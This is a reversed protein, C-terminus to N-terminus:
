HADQGIFKFITLFIIKIDLLPTWKKIYDIDLEYRKELHHKNNIIGRYGNIQALGTLGPKCRHRQMFGKIQRSFEDNHELAHPRPGVLSMEGKLINIFQPLEDISFRRIFKGVKLTRNDNKKVQSNDSSKKLSRLKLIKIINGDWGHRKQVFFIPRGDEFYIFLGFLFILPLSLLLFILGLSYDIVLKLLYNFGYFPSLSTDFISYGNLNDLLIDKHYENSYLTRIDIPLYSLKNMLIKRNINEAALIWVQSINYYSLNHSLKKDLNIQQIPFLNYPKNKDIFYCLRFHYKNENNFEKILKKCDEFNGILFVNKTLLNTQILKNYLYNFLYKHLIFLLSVSIIFFILWLRSYFNTVKLIVSIFILIFIAILFHIIDQYFVLSVKQQYFRNKKFIIIELILYILILICTAIFYEYFKEDRIRIYFAFYSSLSIILLKNFLYFINILEENKQLIKEFM